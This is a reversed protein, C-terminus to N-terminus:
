KLSAMAGSMCTRWLGTIRHITSLLLCCCNLWHVSPCSFPALVVAIACNTVKIAEVAIKAGEAKLENASLNLSTLAGMDKIVDAVAVVGPAEGTKAGAPLEKYFKKEAANFFEGPHKSNKSTEWLVQALNNNSINLNTL